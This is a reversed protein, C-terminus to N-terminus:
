GGPSEYWSAWWAKLASAAAAVAVALARCGHDLIMKSGGAQGVGQGRGERELMLQLDRRVRELTESKGIRNTSILM